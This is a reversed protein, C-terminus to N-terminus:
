NEGGAEAFRRVDADEGRPHEVVEPFQPQGGLMQLLQRREDRPGMPDHEDGARGAGPFGRGEIAAQRLEVRHLALDQRDLVGNFVLQRPDTLNLDMRFDPEGKSM